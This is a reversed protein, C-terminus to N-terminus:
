KDVSGFHKKLWDEVDSVKFGWPGQASALAVKGDAGIIFLRDPYAAFEEDVKNDFKDVVCPMSLKLKTGCKKAISRREGLSKPRNFVVENQTNSPLQWGDDPHAERIYVLLFAARDRYEKYIREM